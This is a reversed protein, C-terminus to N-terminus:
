GMEGCASRNLNVCGMTRGIMGIGKKGLDALCSSCGSDDLAIKLGRHKYFEAHGGCWSWGGFAGVGRPSVM